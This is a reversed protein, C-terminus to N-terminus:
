SAAHLLQGRGGSLWEGLGAATLPAGVWAGSAWECGLDCVDRALVPRDVGAAGVEVGLDQGLKVIARAIMGDHANERHRAVLDAALELADVPLFRLATLSGNRGGFGALAVRLGLDRLAQLHATTARDGVFTADPRVAVEFWAPHCGAGLLRRRIMEVVDNRHLLRLPLDVVLPVLPVDQALWEGMQNGATELTWRIVPLALDDFADSGLDLMEGRDSTKLQLRAARPRETRLDVQPEFALTLSGAALDRRAAARQRVQVTSSGVLLPQHVRYCDPGAIKARFAAAEARALLTEPCQADAPYLAVGACATLGLKHSGHRLPRAIADLLRRVLLLVAELSKGGETWVAFRGAGITGLSADEGAAGALREALDHLVHDGGAEGILLNLGQLGDVDLCILAAPVAPVADLRPGLQAVFAPRTPLGTVKDFREDDRRQELARCDAVVQRLARLVEKSGDDAVLRVDSELVAPALTKIETLADPTTVLLLPRHSVLPALRKVLEVAESPAAAGDVLVFDVRDSGLRSLAETLSGVVVFRVLGIPQQQWRVDGARKPTVVLAVLPGAMQM